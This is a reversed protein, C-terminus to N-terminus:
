WHDVVLMGRKNKIERIMKEVINIGEICYHNRAKQKEKKIKKNNNNEEFIM